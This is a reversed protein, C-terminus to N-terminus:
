KQLMRRRWIILGTIPLSAGVLSALFMIAKGLWGLIIGEHIDLNMRMMKDAASKESYEGAWPGKGQLEKLNYQDFYRNDQKYYSGLEHVVSVRYVDSDNQPLAYYFQEAEPEENKLKSDLIDINAM